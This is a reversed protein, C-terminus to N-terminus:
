QTDRPFLTLPSPPEPLTVKGRMLAIGLSINGSNFPVLTLWFLNYKGRLLGTALCAILGIACGLLWYRLRKSM